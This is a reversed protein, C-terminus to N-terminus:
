FLVMWGFIILVAMAIVGLLSLGVVAFWHLFILGLVVTSDTPKDAFRPALADKAYFYISCFFTMVLFFLCPFLAFDVTSFEYVIGEM